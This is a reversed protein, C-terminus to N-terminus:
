LYENLRCISVTTTTPHVDPEDLSILQSSGDRKMYSWNGKGVSSNKRKVGNRKLLLEDVMSQLCVSMLIAQESSVTIWQLRDKSM